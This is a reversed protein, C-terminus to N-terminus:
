YRSANMLHQVGVNYGRRFAARYDDRAAPGDVPPHRFEDRNMVDPRRHNQYDKRAGEIGDHFGRRGIEHFESPPTEWPEARYGQALLSNSGFVPITLVLAAIASISRKLRM